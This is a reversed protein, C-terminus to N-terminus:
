IKEGTEPHFLEGVPRGHARIAGYWAVLRVLDGQTISIRAADAAEDWQIVRRASNALFKRVNDIEQPDVDVGKM